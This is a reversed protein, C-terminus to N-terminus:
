RVSVLPTSAVSKRDGRWDSEPRRELGRLASRNPLHRCRRAAMLCFLPTPESTSRAGITRYPTRECVGPLANM